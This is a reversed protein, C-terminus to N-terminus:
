NSGRCSGTVGVGRGHIMGRWAGGACQMVGPRVQLERRKQGLRTDLEALEEEAARKRSGLMNHVRRSAEFARRMEREIAEPSHDAM